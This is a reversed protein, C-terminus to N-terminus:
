FGQDDLHLTHCVPSIWWRGSGFTVRHVWDTGVKEDGIPMSCFMVSRMLDRESQKVGIARVLVCEGSSVRVM